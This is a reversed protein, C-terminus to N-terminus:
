WSSTLPDAATYPPGGIGNNSWRLIRVKDYLVSMNKNQNYYDRYVGLTLGASRGTAGNWGIDGDWVPYPSNNSTLADDNPVRLTGNVWFYIQARQGVPRSSGWFDPSGLRTAFVFRYWTNRTLPVQYAIKRVVDTGGKTGTQTNVRLFLSGSFNHMTGYIIPGQSGASADQRWQFVICQQRSDTSPMQFAGDQGALGVGEGNTNGLKMAFGTYRFQGYEYVQPGTGGFRSREDCMLYERKQLPDPSYTCDHGGNNYITCGLAKSNDVVGNITPGYNQSNWPGSAHGSGKVWTPAHGLWPAASTPAPGYYDRSGSGPMLVHRSTNLGGAYTTGSCDTVSGGYFAIPFIYGGALTLPAAASVLQLSDFKIQRIAEVNQAQLASSSLFSLLATRLLHQRFTSKPLKM